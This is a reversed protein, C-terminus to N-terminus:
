QGAPIKELKIYWDQQPQFHEAAAENNITMTLEANPTAEFFQRIEELVEPSAKDPADYAATLKVRSNYGTTTVEAVRFRCLVM